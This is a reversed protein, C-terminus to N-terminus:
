RRAYRRYRNWRIWVPGLHVLVSSELLFRHVEVGLLWSSWEVAVLVEDNDCEDEGWEYRWLQRIM